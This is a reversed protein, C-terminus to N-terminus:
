RIRDAKLLSKVTLWNNAVLSLQGRKDAHVVSYPLPAFEAYISELRDQHICSMIATGPGALALSHGYEIGVEVYTAPRLYRHIREM